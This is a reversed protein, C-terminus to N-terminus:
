HHRQHRGDPSTIIVAILSTASNRIVPREESCSEQFLQGSRAAFDDDNKLSSFRTRGYSRRDQSRGEWTTSDPIVVRRLLQIISATIPCSAWRSSRACLVGSFLPELSARSGAGHATCGAFMVAHRFLSLWVRGHHVSREVCVTRVGPCICRARKEVFSPRLM